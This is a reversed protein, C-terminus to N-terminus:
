LADSLVDMKTSHSGKILITGGKIKNELLYEKALSSTKFYIENEKKDNEFEEFEEGILIVGKLNMNRIIDLINKHEQTSEEGLEKMAGIFAYKNDAKLNEFDQLAVMLSSPNANYCDLILTNDKTKHIQSRHNTPTYDEIAKISLNLDVEFIKGVTMAALINHSNYSGILKSNIIHGEYDLQATESNIKNTLSYKYTLNKHEKSYNSLSIDDMNIIAFHTERDLYRFLETKTKIVGEFGGFGELHARGINTILGYKPEAIKCLFDIEGQHNAGMEIIAFETQPTIRLLTLPVGIHNNFNGQTAITNYKQSIVAHTLEKTTTKGNTGTIALLKLTPFQRRHHNALLQLAYLVDEVLFYKDNIAYEKEDVVCLSAGMELAKPAFKNGNFSEGKLAFFIDGKKINRSDTTISPNLLFYKYLEEIRQKFDERNFEM